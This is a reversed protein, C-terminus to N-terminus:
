RSLKNLLRYPQLNKIISEQPSYRGGSPYRGNLYDPILHVPTQGMRTGDNLVVQDGQYGAPYEDLDEKTPASVDVRYIGDGEIVFARNSTCRYYIDILGNTRYLTIKRRPNSVEYGEYYTDHYGLDVVEGPNIYFTFSSDLSIVGGLYNISEVNPRGDFVFYRDGSFSIAIKNKFEYEVEYSNFTAQSFLTLTSLTLVGLILLKKM